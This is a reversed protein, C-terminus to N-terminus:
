LNLCSRRVFSAPLSRCRSVQNYATGLSRLPLLSPASKPHGTFQDEGKAQREL